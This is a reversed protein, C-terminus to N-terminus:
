TVNFKELDNPYLVTYEDQTLARYGAKVQMTPARGQLFRLGERFDAELSFTFIFINFEGCGFDHGDVVSDSALHASITQELMLLEDFEEISSAELQFVLLYKTSKM